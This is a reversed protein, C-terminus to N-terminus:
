PVRSGSSASWAYVPIGRVRVGGDIGLRQAAGLAAALRRRHPWLALLDRWRGLEVRAHSDVSRITIEAAGVNLCLDADVIPRRV